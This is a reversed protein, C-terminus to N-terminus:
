RPQEDYSKVRSALVDLYFLPAALLVSDGCRRVVWKAKSQIRGVWMPSSYYCRRRLAPFILLRPYWGSSALRAYILCLWVSLGIPGLHRDIAGCLLVAIVMALAANDLRRKGKIRPAIDDEM